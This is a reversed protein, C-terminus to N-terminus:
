RRSKRGTAFQGTLLLVAYGGITLFLAPNGLSAVFLIGAGGHLAALLFLLRATHKLLAKEDYAAKESASMTNYGALLDSGRNRSFLIGLGALLVAIAM